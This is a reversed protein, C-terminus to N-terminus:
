GTHHRLARPQHDVLDTDWDRRVVATSNAPVDRLRVAPRAVRPRRDHVPHFVAWETRQAKARYMAADANALAVSLTRAPRTLGISATVTVTCGTPLPIPTAIAACLRRAVDVPNRHTLLVAFEDGGLRAAAGAHTLREAIAQLAHDGAAHGHRDNVPKFGDLDILAVWPTPDTHRTWAEGLGTRNLLGTLPDHTTAHHLTGLHRRAATLRHHYCGIIILAAIVLGHLLTM